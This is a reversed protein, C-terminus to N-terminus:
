SSSVVIDREKCDSVERGSFLKPIVKNDLRSTDTLIRELRAYTELNVRCLKLPYSEKPPLLTYLKAQISEKPTYM